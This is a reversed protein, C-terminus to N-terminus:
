RHRVCVGQRRDYRCRFKKRDNRTCVGTWEDHIRMCSRRRRGCRCARRQQTSCVTRGCPRQCLSTRRNRWLSGHQRCHHRGGCRWTGHAPYILMEPIGDFKKRLAEDQTAIGVPCTNLHCQRDMRCGLAILAATGFNFEEAGLMAAIVIDRATKLGGDVRITVRERLGNLVLVQQAEALGLEWAGGANAISSLPSAGTGGNHGSIIITDAQAKAVGAAITGVGAEAVLKVGIRARPYVQKLDYILQALDEISYIDHHPPPSILQVGPASRRLQAILPTVKSGPLQGGEGPKSGQAMKIEIEKANALYEATVGFRASAVQKIASNASDGDPRIHFREAAEGGEGTNSKGGIRNMAIAITEHVEPAISGLSMAATTCRKLIDEVPEVDDLPVAPRTSHFALLDKLAIPDASDIAAAFAQYDADSGSKRFQQMTRLAAPAWAHQEGIKRYRYFGLDPLATATNTFAASHRTRAENIIDITSLGGIRTPTGTFYRDVTKQSIGVAEFIQAGRYSGLLRFQAFSHDNTHPMFLMGVGLDTESHLANALSPNEALFLKVPIQTLIGAGDGTETDADM